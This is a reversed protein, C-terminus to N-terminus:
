SGEKDTPQEDQWEITGLASDDPPLHVTLKSVDQPGQVRASIALLAANIAAETRQLEKAAEEYSRRAVDMELQLRAKREALARLQWTEASNLQASPM